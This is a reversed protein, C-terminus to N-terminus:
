CERRARRRGHIRRREEDLRRRRRDRHLRAIRRQAERRDGVVGRQVRETRADGERREVRHDRADIGLADHMGDRRSARREERSQTLGARPHGDDDARPVRRRGVDHPEVEHRVRTVLRDVAPLRRDADPEVVAVGDGDLAIPGRDDGRGHAVHPECAQPELHRTPQLLAHIEERPSARPRQREIRPLVHAVTGHVVIGIREVRIRGAKLPSPEVLLHRAGHLRHAVRQGRAALAEVDVQLVDVEREARAVLREQVHLRGLLVRLEDLRRERVQVLGVPPNGIGHLRRELGLVRQVIARVDPARDDGRRLSERPVSPVGLEDRRARRRDGARRHQEVLHRAHAAHTREHALDRVVAILVDGRRRERRSPM